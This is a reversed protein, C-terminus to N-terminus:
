RARPPPSCTLSIAEAIEGADTFTAFEKDPDAARMAPTVIANVRVM